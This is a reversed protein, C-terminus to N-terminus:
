IKLEKDFPNTEKNKIVSYRRVTEKEFKKYTREILEQWEHITSIEKNGVNLKNRIYLAGTRLGINNNQAPAKENILEQHGVYILPFEKCELVQIFVFKKLRDDDVDIEIKEVKCQISQNGRNNLYQNIQDHSYSNFNNDSLGERTGNDKVGIVIIGGERENSLAFISKVIELMKPRSTWVIDGKYELYTEEKGHYLASRFIDINNTDKIKEKDM